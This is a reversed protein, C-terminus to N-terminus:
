NRGRVQSLYAAIQAAESETVRAGRQRMAWVTRQWEAPSKYRSLPTEIPHCRSCKVEFLARGPADPAGGCGVVGLLLLAAAGLQPWRAGRPGGPRAPKGIAGGAEMLRRM